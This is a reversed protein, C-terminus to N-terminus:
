DAMGAPVRGGNEALGQMVKKHLWINMEASGNKEGQYGLETALEKRNDLSPDLDLLRMLDAISTRWNLNPNGKDRMKQELVAEVDVQQGQLSQGAGAMGGGGTTAQAVQTGATMVQNLISDYIGM